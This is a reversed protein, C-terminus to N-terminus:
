VGRGWVCEAGLPVAGIENNITMISVLVTDPRIAAELQALDILGDSKVPLYTVEHGRMQMYRCSDLVCKDAGCGWARQVALM